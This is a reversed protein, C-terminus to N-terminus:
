ESPPHGPGLEPTFPPWFLLDMCVDPVSSDKRPRGAAGHYDASRSDTASTPNINVFYLTRLSV